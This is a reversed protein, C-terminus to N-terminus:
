ETNGAIAYLREWHSSHAMMTPEPNPPQRLHRLHVPALALLILARCGVLTYILLSPEEKEAAKVDNDLRVGGQGLNNDKLSLPRAEPSCHPM